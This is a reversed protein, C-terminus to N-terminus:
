LDSRIVDDKSNLDVSIYYSSLFSFRITLKGSLKERYEKKLAQLDEEYNDSLAIETAGSFDVTVRDNTRTIAPKIRDMTSDKSGLLKHLPSSPNLLEKAFALKDLGLQGGCLVYHINNM